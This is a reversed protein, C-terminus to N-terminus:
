RSKRGGSQKSSPKKSERDARYDPAEIHFVMSIKVDLMRSSIRDELDGLDFVTTFVTPLQANYRYNIVQYLKEQAWPTSTQSGLDDLILLPATKVREFLGDYTIKSDPSFTLRLHDLFEPVIQFEVPHGAQLRHNAIAAALHTKGCGHDGMYVLWFMPDEAYSRAQKFANALNRREDAPLDLRKSDFNDFTMSQLLKLELPSINSLYPHQSEGVQFVQSLMEDTLRTRLREPLEASSLNTTFITPLKANFRHNIIQFLKEQAWPTSSQTGLDDLILLPANLIQDFLDDYSIESNPSFTSRLHDLLDPVVIFLAPLGVSIRQNAISAALHTKGCGSCGTFVLWGDTNQVYNKAAALANKFLKQNKPDSSRGTEILTDFRLHTLPGLNSYRELRAQRDAELEQQKCECPFVQGFDPHGVPVDYSLWGQDRCKPCSYETDM